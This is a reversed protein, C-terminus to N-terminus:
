RGPSSPAHVKAATALHSRAAVQDGRAIAAVSRALARAMGPAVLAVAGLYVIAGTGIMLGLLLGPRLGALLHPMSLLVAGMAVGALLAEGGARFQFGVPLGILRRVYTASLPWVVLSRVLLAVAVAVVGLPAVLPVVLLTFATTSLSVRIQLDARGLGRLLGTNFGAVAGRLGILALIQAPLVAETWEPGFILPVAVPATAAVGIFAPYALFSSARTASALMDRLFAIDERARSATALGISTMPAVLLKQVQEYLRWSLAFLGAAAPGLVLGIVLRPAQTNTFHLLKLLVVSRGFRWIADLADRDTRIAPRWGCHRALGVSRVFARVIELAVLSWIGAGAFALTVGVIGALTTATQEVLVLQRQRFSRQLLAAPVVGAGLLLIPIGIVPLVQEMVPADMAAAVPGAAPILALALLTALVMSVLFAAAKHRNEITERQVLADSFTGFVLADAFTMALVALAYAGYTEPGLLRAMFALTGLAVALQYWRGLMLWGVSAAASAALTERPNM